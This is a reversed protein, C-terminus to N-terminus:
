HRAPDTAAEGLRTRSQFLKAEARRGVAVSLKLGGQCTCLCGLRGVFPKALGRGGGQRVAQDSQVAGTRSRGVM